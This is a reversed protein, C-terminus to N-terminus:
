WAARLCNDLADDLASTFRAEHRQQDAIRSGVRTENRLNGADFIVGKAVTRETPQSRSECM